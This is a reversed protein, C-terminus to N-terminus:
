IKKPQSETKRVIGKGNIIATAEFVEEFITWMVYKGIKNSINVHTHRTRKGYHLCEYQEV